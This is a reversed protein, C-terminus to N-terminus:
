DKLHLREKEAAVQAQAETFRGRVCRTPREKGFVLWGCKDCSYAKEGRKTPTGDRRQKLQCKDKPM